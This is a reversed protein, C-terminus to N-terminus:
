LRLSPPSRTQQLALSQDSERKGKAPRKHLLYRNAEDRIACVITEEQRVAKKVVKMPFKKAHAEILDMVKPNKVGAVERSPARKNDAGTAKSTFAFSSLTAQKGSAKKSREKAQQIDDDVDIETEGFPECVPCCLDELDGVPAEGAVDPLLGAEVALLRGESFARCTATVPCSRCVPNPTCITSGLEMLAQGWRGPRDSKGAGGDAAVGKVLADAANWLLDIVRKSGKVDGYIGLQRSLVRLVNGDVMPAANGFVISSIAGGTYRGVGPVNKQLLDASEPLLGQMEEDDVVRKAAAHIRTARSYYGLGRWASLVEDPEARALDEITPWKAIWNTWYGIVTSVRTQQLMIESIWVEYARRKLAERIDGEDTFRSPDIWTKRWPMSRSTSVGDFWKLIDDRSKRGAEKHLLLPRHYQLLHQRLPPLCPGVAAEDHADLLTYIDPGSAGRGKKDPRSKKRPPMTDHASEESSYAEQASDDEGGANGEDQEDLGLQQAEIKKMSAIASKRRPSPASGAM